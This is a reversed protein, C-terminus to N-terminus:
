QANRKTDIKEYDNFRLILNFDIYYSNDANFDKLAIYNGKKLKAHRNLVTVDFNQDENSERPNGNKDLGYDYHDHLVKLTLSYGDPLKGHKDSYDRVSVVKFKNGTAELITDAKIKTEIFSFINILSMTIMEKVIIKM